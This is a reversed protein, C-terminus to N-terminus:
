AKVVFKGISKKKVTGDKDKVYVALSYKGAKPIKWNIYSKKGYNSITKSKGNLTYTYKYSLTGYGGKATTTLKVKSNKKIKGKSSVALKSISIKNQSVVFKSIAASVVMGDSNKVYAYLRYTGHHVPKWTVSSNTSYKCIDYMKGSLKYRFMYTSNSDIGKADVSLNVKQGTKVSKKDVNVSAISLQAKTSVNFDSIFATSTNGNDNMVDVCIKYVGPLKVALEATDDESYQKIIYKKGGLVYYFEYKLTSNSNMNDAEVTLKAVEDTYMSNTSKDTAFKSILIENQKDTNESGSVNVEISTCVGNYATAYIYAKGSKKSTIVGDKSVEAVDSDSSSWILSRNTANSPEVDAKATYTDGIKLNVTKDSLTVNTVDVIETSSIEKFGDSTFIGNAAAKLDKTQKSGDNFIVNLNTVNKPYEIVYVGDSYESMRVGPWSPGSYGKDDSWTYCNISDAWEAPKEFYMVDGTIAKCKVTIVVSDGKGNFTTATVVATGVGTSTVNGDSDVKVINKNSSKWSVNKNECNDPLVTCDLKLTSGVEICENSKSIDVSEPMVGNETVTVTICTRLGNSSSAYVNTCGPANGKICGDEVFAINEDSSKWEVTKDIANDPLLTVEPRYMEGSKISVNKEKVSITNVPANIGGSLYESLGDILGPAKTLETDLIYVRMDAKKSCEADLTNNNVNKVEGTVADTYRGNPINSFSANGSITVLAFSDTTSDTYRRKFAINSCVIDNTSYQGKRLAPVAARLRNLRQIHLSLPYALTDAVKGTASTYKAFDVTNVSGEINDGFYARGSEELPSNPGDDIKKYKKFEVESGYYICPIGRFTFMLDLNEAWTDQSGAFRQSEPAGDPAYDHSDVYVVNYTADNYYKDSSKAVNFASKATKFNWHMPFDIVSMGSAQSHDPEHYENINLLANDSVPQSAMTGIGNDNYMEETSNMNTIYADKDNEDDNWAYDKSEKWTYFPTSLAPTERYWVSNYRTCVEAFMYFNGEGTTGHVDNYVDNLQNIFAKNFTLRSIHRATDIRFADVGMKIYKSYANVLYKYVIPNETNLDVCDGAIQSIQCTYDDWNFDGHHHYINRVDMNDSDLNKMYNLRMHYQEEPPLTFYNYPLYDPNIEMCDEIDSLDANENKVFLKYLNEEGFNGTHNFVVDQIIKMGHAHVADILDQYTCDDSQYRSDVKSFNIAHYGHYDYGSANEVVPTIWVATFGMAKIYDLKDILGKFDGRWPPDDENQSQGDWCQVNNSEDGDNFRTTIVFYISEDRFDEAVAEKDTYVKTDASVKKVSVFGCLVAMMMFLMTAKVLRKKM